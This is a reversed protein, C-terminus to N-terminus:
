QKLVGAIARDVLPPNLKLALYATATKTVIKPRGVPFFNADHSKTRPMKIRGSDM